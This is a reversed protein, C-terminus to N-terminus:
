RLGAKIKNILSPLSIFYETSPIEDTLARLQGLEKQDTHVILKKFYPYFEDPQTTNPIFLNPARALINKESLIEVVQEESPSYPLDGCIVMMGNHVAIHPFVESLTYLIQNKEQNFNNIHYYFGNPKLVKKISEFFQISKVGGAGPWHPFCLNDIVADFGISRQAYSSVVKRADAMEIRVRPDALPNHNFKTVPESGVVKVIERSWDVAVINRVRKDSLLDALSRGGGLGLLMVSSLKKQMRPLNALYTHRPHNPLASMYQGNSYVNLVMNRGMKEETVAAVGTSGEQYSVISIQPSYQGTALKYKIKRDSVSFLILPIVIFGIFAYLFKYRLFIPRRSKNILPFRLFFFGASGIIVSLLSVLVLSPHWGALPIVVFGTLLSGFTCGVSNSFYIIGTSKGLSINHESLNKILTPFIGSAFFIVPFILILLPLSFHLINQVSLLFKGKEFFDTVATFMQMFDFSPSAKRNLIFQFCFISLPVLTGISAQLIFPLLKANRMKDRFSSWFMSGLSMSLLYSSIIIPFSYSTSGHMIGIFRIFLIEMALATFGSMFAFGVIFVSQMNWSFADKIKEQYLNKKEPKGRKLVIIFLILSIFVSVLSIIKLSNPLGLTGFVLTPLLAGAFAGLTNIGYVFGIFKTNKEIKPIFSEFMLPLTGGMLITPLLLFAFTGAFVSLTEGERGLGLKSNLTILLNNIQIIIEYSWMGFLGILLEVFALSILAKKKIKRFLFGGIGLGLLFVSVIISASIVDGGFSYKLTREWIVQYTLSCFGSLFVLVAITMGIKNTVEKKM